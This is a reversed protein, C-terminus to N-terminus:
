QAPLCINGSTILEILTEDARMKASSLFVRKGDLICLVLVEEHM